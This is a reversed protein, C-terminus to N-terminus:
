GWLEISGAPAQAVPKALITRVQEEEKRLAQSNQSQIERVLARGTATFFHIELPRDGGLREAVVPINETALFERAFAANRKPVPSGALDLVASAGFLKGKLRRRDGGAKMIENILLEMAHVGYRASDTPDSESSPLLFHNMGGVEAVPDWLCASVCSGLLTSLRTPDACAVAEGVVIRRHPEPMQRMIGTTIRGDTPPPASPPRSRFAAPPPAPPRAATVLRPAPAMALRPAAAPVPRAASRAPLPTADPRPSTMAPVVGRPAVAPAIPPRPAPATARPPPPSAAAAARATSAAPAAATRPGGALKYVTQGVLDFDTTGVLSESHGLFLHGGPVLQAAFRAFLKEQTPRDFYIVVNRCLIVDFSESHPWPGMLNLQRFEIRDKFEPRIRVGDGDPVFYRQIGPVGDLRDRRYWGNRAHTLVETDIDTAVIRLDVAPSPLAEQLAIAISYPEEGTSCGASWIRVRRKGEARWATALQRLFNFHHPERFFDTKNTTICNIFQTREADGGAGSAVHDHYAGYSTLHLAVLRRRLRSRILERKGDNLAIGTLQYVLERLKEFERDSLDLQAPLADVTSM